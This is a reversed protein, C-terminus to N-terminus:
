MEGHQFLMAGVDSALKDTRNPCEKGLSGGIHDEQTKCLGEIDKVCKNETLCWACNLSLCTECSEQAKPEYDCVTAKQTGEFKKEITKPEPQITNGDCTGTTGALRGVHDPRGNCGDQTDDVCSGAALCWACGTHQTCAKCSTSQKFNCTTSQTSRPSEPGNGRGNGRGGRQDRERSAGGADNKDADCRGTTGELRGVHDRQGRCGEKSDDVCKGDQLCWACGPNRTCDSCSASHKFNCKPQENGDGNPQGNSGGADNNRRGNDSGGGSSCTGTAGEIRGVHDDPGRCSNQHDLKCTAEKLCWACAMSEKCSECTTLASCNNGTSSSDCTANSGPLDGVHDTAGKCMRSGQATNEDFCVADQLCWACGQSRCSKCSKQAVCDKAASIGTVIEKTILKKKLQDFEEQTLIGEVLLEKLDKLKSVIDTAQSDTTELDTDVDAEESDESDESDEEMTEEENEPDVDVLQNCGGFAVLGGLGEALPECVDSSESQCSNTGSCWACGTVATCSRCTNAVISDCTEESQLKPCRLGQTLGLEGVHVKNKKCYGLEDPVCSETDLCWGCKSHSLCSSCSTGSFQECFIETSKKTSSSTDESRALCLSLFVTTVTLMM